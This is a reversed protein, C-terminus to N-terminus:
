VNHREFYLTTLTQIRVKVSIALFDCFDEVDEKSYMDENLKDAKADSFEINISRLLGDKKQGFFRLYKQIQDHNEGSLSEIPNMTLTETPQLHHERSVSLPHRSDRKFNHRRQTHFSTSIEFCRVIISSYCM